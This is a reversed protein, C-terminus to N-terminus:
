DQHLIFLTQKNTMQDKLILQRQHLFCHLYDLHTLVAFISDELRKPYAKPSKCYLLSNQTDRLCVNGLGNQDTSM